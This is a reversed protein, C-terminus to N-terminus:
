RVVFDVDSEAGVIRIELSNPLCVISRGTGGIWGCAICDGGPCDSHTVAIKGNKVTLTNSYEGEYSWTTDTDLPLSQILQGKHYIRAYATGNSRAPLFCLFLVAILLLVIGVALLDGKRFRLALNM